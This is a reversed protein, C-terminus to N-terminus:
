SAARRRYAHRARRLAKYERLLGRVETLAAGPDALRELGATLSAIVQDLRQVEAPGDIEGPVGFPDNAPLNMFLRGLFTAVHIRAVLQGDREYDIAM